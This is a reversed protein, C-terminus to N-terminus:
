KLFFWGIITKFGGMLAIIGLVIGLLWLSPKKLLGAGRVLDSVGSLNEMFEKTEKQATQIEGLMRYFNKHDEEQLKNAEDIKKFNEADEKFHKVM